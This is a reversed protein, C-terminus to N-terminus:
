FDKVQDRLVDVEDASKISRGRIIELLIVGFNYIDNKNEQEVRHFLM